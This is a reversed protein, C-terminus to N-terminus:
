AAQEFVRFNLNGVEIFYAGLKRNYRDTMVSSTHRNQMQQWKLDINGKNNLLYEINGTHKLAYMDKDIGLGKKPDKVEVRWKESCFNKGLPDPGPKCNDRGFLYYHLPYKKLNMRQLIKKLPPVIQVYAGSFSKTENRGFKIIDNELDIDGIKLRRIESPRAWAYYICSLFGIFDFEKQQLFYSFILDMERSTIPDFKERDGVDKRYQRKKLKEVNGVHDYTCWKKKIAQKFYRSAYTLSSNITKKSYKKEKMWIKFAEAHDPTIFAIPVDILNKETIFNTFRNNHSQMDRKANDTEGQCLEDVIIQLQQIITLNNTNKKTLSTYPNFGAKLKNNMFDVAQKGYKLRDHLDPIRNMDFREKFPEYQDITGPKLYYYRIYWEKSTDGKAWYLRAKKYRLNLDSQM